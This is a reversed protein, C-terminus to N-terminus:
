FSILIHTETFDKKVLVVDPPWSHSLSEVVVKLDGEKARIDELKEVLESIKM